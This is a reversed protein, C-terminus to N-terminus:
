VTKWGDDSGCEEISTDASNEESFDTETFSISNNELAKFGEDRFRDCFKQWSKEFRRDRKLHGMTLGFRYNSYMSFQIVADEHKRSYDSRENLCNFYPLFEATLMFLVIKSGKKLEYPCEQLKHNCISVHAKDYFKLCKKITKRKSLNEILKHFYRGPLPSLEGKNSINHPFKANPFDAFNYLILNIRFRHNTQNLDVQDAQYAQAQDAQAQDAQAQDEDAQDQALSEAQDEDAQDQAEVQAQDEDAQDQALSEAQDEDAKKIHQELCLDLQEYLKKAFAHYSIHLNQFTQTKNM